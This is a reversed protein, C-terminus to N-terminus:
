YNKLNQNITILDTSVCGNQDTVEVLYDIGSIGGELFSPDVIDGNDQNIWVISYPPIGGSIM